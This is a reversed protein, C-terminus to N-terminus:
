RRAVIADESKLRTLAARLEQKLGDLEALRRDMQRLLANQQANQAVLSDIREGQSQITAAQRENNQALSGLRAKQQQVENLLMPTLEEYHVGQIKGTADRIVLEPYVRDVEEAILGYQLAGNPDTKLHFSVPRLEQLRDTISGMSSIQTKYRESSAQVGLQGSSTVYVAAGTIQTGSVGALYATTQTGETGIRIVNGDSSVGV